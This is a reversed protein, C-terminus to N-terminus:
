PAEGKREQQYLSREEGEASGPTHAPAPPREDIEGREGEACGPTKDSDEFNFEEPREREPPRTDDGKETFRDPDM